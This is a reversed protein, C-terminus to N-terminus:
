VEYTIYACLIVQLINYAFMFYRLEYPKQNKMWQRGFVIASIYVISILVTPGVDQMLPWNEVRIDSRFAQFSCFFSSRM